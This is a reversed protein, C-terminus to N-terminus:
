FLRPDFERSQTRRNQMWPPLKKEQQGTNTPSMSQPTRGFVSALNKNKGKVAEGAQRTHDHCSERLCSYRVGVSFADQPMKPLQNKRPKWKASSFALDLSMDKRRCVLVGALIRGSTPTRQKEPLAMLCPGPRSLGSKRCDSLNKAASGSFEAKFGGFIVVMIALVKRPSKHNDRSWGAKSM